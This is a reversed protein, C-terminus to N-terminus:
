SKLSSRMQSLFHLSNKVSVKSIVIIYTYARVCLILCVRARARVRLILCVRARVRMCARM